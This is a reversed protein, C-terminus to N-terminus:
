MMSNRIAEELATNVQAQEGVKIERTGYGISTFVLSQEATARLKYEGKNNTIVSVSTGKISVTVGALPKGMPVQLKSRYGRKALCFCGSDNVVAPYIFSLVKKKNCM